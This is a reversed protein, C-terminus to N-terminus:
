RLFFDSAILTDPEDRIRQLFHNTKKFLSSNQKFVMVERTVELVEGQLNKEVWYNVWGKRLEYNGNIAPVDMTEFEGDCLRLM